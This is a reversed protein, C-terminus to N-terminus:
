VHIQKTLKSTRMADVTWTVTTRSILEVRFICATPEELNNIGEVLTSSTVDWFVMIMAKNLDKEESILVTHLLLMM